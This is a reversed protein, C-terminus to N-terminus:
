GCRSGELRKRLESLQERVTSRLKAPMENEAGEELARRLSALITEEHRPMWECLMEECFDM